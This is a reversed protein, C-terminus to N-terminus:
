QRLQLDFISNAGHVTAKSNTSKGLRAVKVPYRTTTSLDPVEDDYGDIGTRHPATAEAGTLTVGVEDTTIIPAKAAATGATGCAARGAIPADFCVGLLAKRTANM